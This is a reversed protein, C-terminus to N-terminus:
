LDHLYRRGRTRHRGELCQTTVVGVRLRNIGALHMPRPYHVKPSFALSPEFGRCHYHPQFIQLYWLTHDHHHTPFCSHCQQGTTMTM